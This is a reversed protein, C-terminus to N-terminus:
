QLWARFSSAAVDALSARMLTMPWASVFKAFPKAPMALEVAKFRTLLSIVDRTSCTNFGDPLAPEDDDLADAVDELERELVGAAGAVPVPVVGTVVDVESEVSPIRGPPVIVM